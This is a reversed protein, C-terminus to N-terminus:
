LGFCADVGAKDLAILTSSDYGKGRADAARQRAQTCARKQINRPSERPVSGPDFGQPRDNARNRAQMQDDIRRADDRARPDDRVPGYTKVDKVAQGPECADTTYSVHGQKDVCKVIVTQAPAGAAALVAALLFWKSM